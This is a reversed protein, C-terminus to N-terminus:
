RARACVSDVAQLVGDAWAEPSYAEIRERSRFAMASRLDSDSSLRTMAAALQAPDRPPVVFGNWGDQVLDLTCGAVSTVIVPLSCSMAENVVLGWPDSHTPLIMTEALAYVEPLGERQIFGTFHITGPSVQAAKQMLEAHDSGDGVFVLGVQSRIEPSLRAYADLLDFVGKAHVLRGVYLFYRPPLSLRAHPESTHQRADRALRAFLPTDVVNAAIFIREGAIGLHKLYDLSSTGPVVFATCLNLFRAKLFEVLRHGRRQDFATSESWLLLPV